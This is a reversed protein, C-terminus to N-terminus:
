LIEFSFKLCLLCSFKLLNPPPPPPTGVGDRPRPPYACWFTLLIGATLSFPFSATILYESAIEPLIRWAWFPDYCTYALRITAGVVELICCIPGATLIPYKATNYLQHIRYLGFIIIFTEWISLIIAFIIQFPSDAIAKFKNIMPRISVFSGRPLLTFRGKPTKCAGTEFARNYRGEFVPIKIDRRDSGDVLFMGFGTNFKYNRVIFVAVAGSNQAQRIRHEHPGSFDKFIAIHGRVDDNPMYAITGNFEKV